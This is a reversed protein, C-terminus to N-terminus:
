ELREKGYAKIRLYDEAEDESPLSSSLGALHFMPLLVNQADGVVLDYCNVVRSDPGWTAGSIAYVDQGYNDVFSLGKSDYFEALEMYFSFHNQGQEIDEWWYELLNMISEEENVEVEFEDLYSYYGMEQSKMYFDYRAIDHVISANHSAVEMSIDESEPIKGTAEFIKHYIKLLVRTSEPCDMENAAFPTVYHEMKEEIFLYFAESLDKRAMHQPDRLALDPM